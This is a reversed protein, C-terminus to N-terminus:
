SIPLIRPGGPTDKVDFGLTHLKKHILDAEDWNGAKRARERKEVLLLAEQKIERTEMVGIGVGLVTDFARLTAKKDGDPITGDKVLQWVIAIARPFDLDDSVADFFGKEYGKNTEGKEDSLEFYHEYLKSLANEAGTLAKWTFNLPTRYHGQFLWYRYSLPNFGKKILDELESREEGTLRVIYKKEM